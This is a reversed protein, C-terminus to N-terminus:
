QSSAMRSITAHNVRYYRLNKVKSYVFKNRAEFIAESTM